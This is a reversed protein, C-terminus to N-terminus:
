IKDCQVGIYLIAFFKVPHNKPSIQAVLKILFGAYAPKQAPLVPNSGATRDGPCGSLLRGWDDM